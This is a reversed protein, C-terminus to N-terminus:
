RRVGSTTAGAQPRSQRGSRTPFSLGEDLFERRHGSFVNEPRRASLHDQQNGRDKVCRIAPCAPHSFQSCSFRANPFNRRMELVITCRRAVEPTNGGNNGIMVMVAKPQFGQGEGNKLGWLVGQTTDGSVAFNATKIDGFYKDFMPKNADQLWWDTISDGHLLLDIDGQRAREVFGEHRAGMRQQTQTYTAAVNLRPPWLPVLTEYKKLLPKAASKDTEILKRIADNVQIVEDPTPRLM